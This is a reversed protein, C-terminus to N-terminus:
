LHSLLKKIILFPLFIEKNNKIIITHSKYFQLIQKIKLIIM